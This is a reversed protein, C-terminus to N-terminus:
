WSAAKGKKYPDGTFPQFGIVPYADDTPSFILMFGESVFQTISTLMKTIAM